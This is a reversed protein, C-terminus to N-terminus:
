GIHVGSGTRDGDFRKHTAKNASYSMRPRISIVLITTHVDNDSDEECLEPLAVFVSLLLGTVGDETANTLGFVGVYLVMGLENVAMGSLCCRNPAFLEIIISPCWISQFSVTTDNKIFCNHVANIAALRHRTFALDHIDIYDAKNLAMMEGQIAVGWSRVFDRPLQTLIVGDTCVLVVRGAQYTTLLLYIGLVDFLEPHNNTFSVNFTM